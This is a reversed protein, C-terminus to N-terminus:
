IGEMDQGNYITSCYFNHHMYRKLNRNEPHIGLLLIALDYPLETKLKRLFRLVTRWLPKVSKCTWWCHSLIGKEECGRWSKNNTSKKIIALRIFTLHYRMTTKIHMERIILWRSCRKMHRKAIQIDEKSFYRNPNKKENKSQTTQKKLVSGKFNQGKIWRLEGYFASHTNRKRVQKM